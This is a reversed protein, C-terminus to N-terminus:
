ADNKEQIPKRTADSVAALRTGCAGVASRGGPADTFFYVV